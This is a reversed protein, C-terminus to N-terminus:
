AVMIIVVIIISVLLHLLCVIDNEEWQWFASVMPLLLFAYFSPCFIFMVLIHTSAWRSPWLALYLHRGRSFAAFNPQHESSSHSVAISGIYSFALSPHLTFKTGRLIGNPPCTGGFICIYHVLGFTTYLKTSRWQAVNTCYRHWSAFGTSIQQPVWVRWGIEAVLLDFNVMSHPWASSINSNLLNKEVTSAHRLQLSIVRCLQAITHLHRIKRSNGCGTNEALWRCCM